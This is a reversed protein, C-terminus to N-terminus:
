KGNNHDNRSLVGRYAHQKGYFVTNKRSSDFYFPKFKATLYHQKRGIALAIWVIKNLNSISKRKSLILVCADKGSM